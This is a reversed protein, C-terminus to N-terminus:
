SLQAQQGVLGVEKGVAQGAVGVLGVVVAGDLDAQARPPAVEVPGLEAVLPDVHGVDGGTAVLDPGRDVRVADVLLRVGGVVRDGVAHHDRRSRPAAVPLVGAPWGTSMGIEPVSTPLVTFDWMGPHASVALADHMVVAVAPLSIKWDEPEGVAPVTWITSALGFSVFATARKVGGAPKLPVTVEGVRGLVRAAQGAGAVTVTVTPEPPVVLLPVVPPPVLPPPVVVTLAVTVSFGDKRRIWEPALVNRATFPVSGFDCAPRRTRTCRLTLLLIM